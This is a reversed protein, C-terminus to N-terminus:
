RDHPSRSWRAPHFSLHYRLISSSVQRWVSVPSGVPPTKKFRDLQYDAMSIIPPPFFLRCSFNTKLCFQRVRINRGRNRQHFCFINRQYLLWKLGNILEMSPWLFITMVPFVLFFSYNRSLVYAIPQYM